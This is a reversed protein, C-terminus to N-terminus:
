AKKTPEFITKAINTPLDFFKKTPLTYMYVIRKRPKANHTKAHIRKRSPRFSKPTIYGSRSPQLEGEKVEFMALPKMNKVILFDVEKGQQNRVYHLNFDGLGQENWRCVPRM